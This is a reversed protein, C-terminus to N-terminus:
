SRHRRPRPGGVSDKYQCTSLAAHFDARTMAMSNCADPLKSIMYPKNHSTAGAMVTVDSGSATNSPGSGADPHTVSGDDTAGIVPWASEWSM